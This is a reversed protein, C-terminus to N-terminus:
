AALWENTLEMNEKNIAGFERYIRGAVYWRLQRGNRDTQVIRATRKGKPTLDSDVEIVIERLGAAYAAVCAQRQSEMQEATYEINMM